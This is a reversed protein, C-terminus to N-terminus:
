PRDPGSAGREGRPRGPHPGSREHRLNRVRENFRVQMAMLELRQAPTLVDALADQETRWLQLERERLRTLESLIREARAADPSDARLVDAAERRLRMGEEAITRRAERNQELVTGLRTRQGADLELREATMDLFRTRIREHMEAREQETRPTRRREGEQAMTAAPVSLAGVLALAFITKRM